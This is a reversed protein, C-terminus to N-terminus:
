FLLAANSIFVTDKNFKKMVKFCHQPSTIMGGHFTWIQREESLKCLTPTVNYYRRRSTRTFKVYSCSQISM